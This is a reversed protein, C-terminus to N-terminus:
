FECHVEYDRLSAEDVQREKLVALDVRRFIGSSQLSELLEAVSPNDLSVGTLHLSGATGSGNAATSDPLSQFDALEMKTIQLRGNNKKAAQSIVGLLTLANRQYELESAVAEQQQLNVLKQRMQVLQRLMTQTPRHERQLIELKQSLLRHERLEYWHSAWGLLLVGSVVASWQLARKRIMLQRRYSSPLLNIANKM